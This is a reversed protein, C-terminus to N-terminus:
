RLPVCLRVLFRGSPESGSQFTFDDGFALRLRERVNSLGIGFGGKIRRGVSNSVCVILRGAQGQTTVEISPDGGGCHRVANEVLPQLIFAPVLADSVAEDLTVDISLEPRRVREIDLYLKQHDLEEGITVDEGGPGELAHRLFASLRSIMLEAQDLRKDMILASLSNLTNFLFHPNVQYRLALLQADRAAVAIDARAQVQRRVQRSYDLALCLAAWALFFWLWFGYLLVNLSLAARASPEIIDLVRLAVANITLYVFAAAMSMCATLAARRLFSHPALSRILVHLTLCLGVGFAALGTRLLLRELQFDAAGVWASVTVIILNATWLAITIWLVLSLESPKESSVAISPAAAKPM